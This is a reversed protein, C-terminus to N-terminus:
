MDDDDEMMLDPDAEHVKLRFDKSVTVPTEKYWPTRLGRLISPCSESMPLQYEDEAVALQALM